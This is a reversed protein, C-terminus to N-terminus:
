GLNSMEKALNNPNNVGITSSGLNTNSTNNSNDVNNNNIVTTGMAGDNGITLKEINNAKLEEVTELKSDDTTM